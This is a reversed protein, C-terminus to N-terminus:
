AFPLRGWVQVVRPVGALTRPDAAYDNLEKVIEDIEAPSALDDELVADAINEMTLGNLLKVEGQLGMPQVVSVNLDQLGCDQVIGPLRQGMNPDGGRHRVVSNYLDFFKRFAPSVPYAFSGSFDIDELVLYGTPRLQKLFLRVATVPEQLHTLLFRSYVLDYEPATSIERADDLRFEINMLGQEASEQRAISLKTEDIDVGVAKGGPAVRRALERTVDGGGCGVDLCNMGDTLNLRDLLMGTSEQMVRGLIRLRERGEIGGRIVYQTNRKM